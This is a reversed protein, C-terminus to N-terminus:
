AVHSKPISRDCGHLPLIAAELHMYLGILGASSIDQLIRPGVKLYFSALYLDLFVTVGKGLQGHMAVVCSHAPTIVYQPEAM